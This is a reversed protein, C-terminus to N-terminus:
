SSHDVVLGGASIEDVTRLRRRREQPRGARRGGSRGRSPSM